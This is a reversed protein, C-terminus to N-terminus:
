SPDCGALIVTQYDTDASDQAAPTTLEKSVKSNISSIRVEEISVSVCSKPRTQFLRVVKRGRKYLQSNEIQIEELSKNLTM